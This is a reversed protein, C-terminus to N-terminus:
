AEAITRPMETWSFLKLQLHHPKLRYRGQARWAEGTLMPVVQRSCPLGMLRWLDIM